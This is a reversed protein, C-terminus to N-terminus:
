TKPLSNYHEWFHLILTARQQSFINLTTCKMLIMKIVFYVNTLIIIRLNHINDKFLKLLEISFIYYKSMFM